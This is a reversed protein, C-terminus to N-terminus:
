DMRVVSEVLKPLKFSLVTGGAMSFQGPLVEDHCHDSRLSLVRPLHSLLLPSSLSFHSHSPPFPLTCTSLTPDPDEKESPYDLDNSGPKSPNAYLLKLARM